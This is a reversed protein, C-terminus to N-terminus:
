KGRRIKEDLDSATLVEVEEETLSDFSSPWEACVSLAPLIATGPTWSSPALDILCCLGEKL